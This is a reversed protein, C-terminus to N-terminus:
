EKSDLYGLRELERREENIKVLFWRQLAPSARWGSFGLAVRLGDHNTDETIRIRDLIFWGNKKAKKRATTPTDIDVYAGNGLNSNYVYAYTYM